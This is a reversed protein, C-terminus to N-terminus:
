SISLTAKSKSCFSDNKKWSTTRNYNKPELPRNYTQGPELWYNHWKDKVRM